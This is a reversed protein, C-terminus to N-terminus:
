ASEEEDEESNAFQPPVPGPEPEPEAFFTRGVEGMLDDAEAMDIPFAAVIMKVGTDRPIERRAVQGVIESLSKVQAGNLATSQVDGGEPVKTMDPGDGHEPPQTADGETPQPVAPLGSRADPTDDDRPPLGGLDRIHDEIQQDPTIIGANALQVLPGALQEVSAREIDGRRISPWLRPDTVGNLRMLRPIAFRNVVDLITDIIGAVSTAFLDTFSSALSFSGHENQGLLLFQALFSTYIEKKYDRIAERIKGVDYQNSLFDIEYGTANGSEDTKGPFVISSREGLRIVSSLQKAAAVMAQEAATLTSTDQTLLHAPIYIVPLGPGREFIIAELEELNTEYYFSRYSSRASSKGEPNGKTGRIRFILMKEIPMPQCGVQKMGAIGGDEDFFWREITTQARFSFARWGIKGDSFKSRKLPDEEEPGGRVKYLIESEAHGYPLCTLWEGLSYDWTHSMDDRCEDVFEAQEVADADESDYPEVYYPVQKVM